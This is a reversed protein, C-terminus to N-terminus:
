GADEPQLVAEDTSGECSWGTRAALAATSCRDGGRSGWGGRACVCVSDDVRGVLPRADSPLCFSWLGDWPRPTALKRAPAGGRRALAGPSHM